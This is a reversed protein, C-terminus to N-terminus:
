FDFTPQPCRDLVNALPVTRMFAALPAASGLYLSNSLSLSTRPTHCKKVGAEFANM